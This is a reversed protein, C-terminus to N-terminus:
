QTLKLKRQLWVKFKPSKLTIKRDVRDIIELISDIKDIATKKIEEKICIYDVYNNIHNIADDIISREKKFNVGCVNCYYNKLTLKGTIYNNETKIIANKKLFQSIDTNPMPYYHKELKLSLKDANVSYDETGDKRVYNYVVGSFSVVDYCEFSQEEGGVLLNIHDFYKSNIIVDTLVYNYKNYRRNRSIYVGKGSVKDGNTLDRMIPIFPLSNM